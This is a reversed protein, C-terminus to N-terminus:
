KVRQREQKRGFMLETTKLVAIRFKCQAEPQQFETLHRAPSGLRTVHGWSVEGTCMNEDQGMMRRVMVSLGM